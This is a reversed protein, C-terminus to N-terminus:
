VLEHPHCNKRNMTNCICRCIEKRSVLYGLGHNGYVISCCDHRPLLNGEANTTCSLNTTCSVLNISSLLLQGADPRVFHKLNLANSCCTMLHSVAEMEQEQEAADGVRLAQCALAEMDVSKRWKRVLAMPVLTLHDMPTLDELSNVLSDVLLRAIWTPDCYSHFEAPDRGKWMNLAKKYWDHIMHAHFANGTVAKKDLFEFMDDAGVQAFSVATYSADIDEGDKTSDYLIFAISPESAM